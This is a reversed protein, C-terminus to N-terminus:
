VTHICLVARLCQTCVCVQHALRCAHRKRDTIHPPLHLLLPQNLHRKPLRAAPLSPAQPDIPAHRVPDPDGHVQGMIVDQPNLM